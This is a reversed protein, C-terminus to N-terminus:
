DNLSNRYKIFGFVEISDVTIRFVILYGKFILDRITEDEFYISKRCQYPNSSIKRICDFLENKFKRARLPSDNAICDIQNALRNIFSTKFIIKM